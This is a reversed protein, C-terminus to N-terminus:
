PQLELKVPPHELHLTGHGGGLQFWERGDSASHLDQALSALMWWSQLGCMCEVKALLGSRQEELYALVAEM